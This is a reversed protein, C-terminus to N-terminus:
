HSASTHAGAGPPQEVGFLRRALRALAPRAGARPPDDRWQALARREGRGCVSVSGRMLASGCEHWQTLAEIKFVGLVM